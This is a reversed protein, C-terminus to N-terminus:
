AKTRHALLDEVEELPVVTIGQYYYTLIRSADKGELAMGQAGYQSMGVGHGYGRTTFVIEGQNWSWSIDSSALGLNERLEKGSFIAQGVQVQAIRNGKTVSVTKIAAPLPNKSAQEPRQSLLHFAPVSQESLNMKELFISVDMRVSNNYRPSLKKDWPSSVSRLYPLKQSWYEEVNETFGNSTSFYVAEIPQNDYTMILGDTERVARDLKEVASPARKALEALSVYAQDAVTASIDAGETSADADHQALRRVIYTRAAIAQAKLAELEFSVPMEAAVVGRVYQDLPVREIKGDAELQVRVYLQEAAAPKAVSAATPQAEQVSAASTSDKENQGATVILVPVLIALTMLVGTWMMLRGLNHQM